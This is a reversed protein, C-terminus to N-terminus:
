IRASVSSVWQKWFMQISSKHLKKQTHHLVPMGGIGCLLKRIDKQVEHQGEVQMVCTLLAAVSASAAPFPVVNPQM